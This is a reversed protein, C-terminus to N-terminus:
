PIIQLIAGFLFPSQGEIYAAPQSRHLLDTSCSDWETTNTPPGDMGAAAIDGFIGGMGPRFDEMGASQDRICVLLTSFDPYLQLPLTPLPDVGAPM